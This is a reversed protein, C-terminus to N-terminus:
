ISRIYIYIIIFKKKEKIQKFIFFVFKENFILKKEHFYFNILFLNLIM